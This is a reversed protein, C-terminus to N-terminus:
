SKLKVTKNIAILLLIGLTYHLPISVSVLLKGTFTSFIGENTLGIWMIWDATASALQYFALTKAVGIHPEKRFMWALWAQSALAMSFLKVIWQGDPTLIWGTVTTVMAPPTLAGVLAYILEVIAVAKFLSTLNFPKM